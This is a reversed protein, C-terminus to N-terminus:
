LPQRPRRLLGHVTGWVVWVITRLLQGFSLPQSVARVRGQRVARIVDRVTPRAPVDILTHTKGHFQWWHHCDSTGVM